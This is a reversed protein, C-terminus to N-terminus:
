LWHVAVSEREFLMGSINVDIGTKLDTFLVKLKSESLTLKPGMKPNNPPLSNARHQLWPQKISLYRQAPPDVLSHSPFVYPPFESGLYETRRWKAMYM